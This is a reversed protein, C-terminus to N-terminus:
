SMSHPSSASTSPNSASPKMARVAQFREALVDQQKLPPLPIPFRRLETLGLFEQRAAGKSETRVYEAAQSSKLYYLLFQQNIVENQKVLGVNKISFVRNDDVICAMGRNAGIM